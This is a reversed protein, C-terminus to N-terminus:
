PPIRVATHLDGLPEVRATLFGAEHMWKMREASTYEFGGATEILMNLSSLLGHPRMRGDPGLVTGLDTAPEEPCLPLPAKSANVLNGAPV